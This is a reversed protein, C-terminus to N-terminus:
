FSGYDVQFCTLGIARWMKVVSDRDDLVLQVNWMPAIKERFMAYKVLDDQRCDTSARMHLTYEFHQGLANRLFRETPERAKEDRGSVFICRCTDSSLAQVVSLVAPKVKDTVDCERADYANKRGRIDALTGDLDCLFACPLSPDPVYPSFKKSPFFTTKQQGLVLNQHPKLMKEMVNQPVKAEHRQANREFSVESPTAMTQEIFTVDGMTRAMKRIDAFSQTNLHTDDLIVSYGEELAAKVAAEKIATVIHEKSSPQNNPDNGVGAMMARISDRNIRVWRSPDVRVMESALTTKGSGPLGRLVLIVKSM